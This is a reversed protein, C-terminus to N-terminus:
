AARWLVDQQQLRYIDDLGTDTVYRARQDEPSWVDNLARELTYFGARAILAITVSGDEAATLTQYDLLADLVEIPDRVVRGLPDICALWLQASRNRVDQALWTLADSPMGSLSFEVEHISLEATRKVPNVGGLISTGTWTQGAWVITGVGTWYRVRGAPHDIEAFLALPYGGRIADRMRRTIAM